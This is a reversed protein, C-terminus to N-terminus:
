VLSEMIRNVYMNLGDTGSGIKKITGDATLWVDITNEELFELDHSVVVVAGPFEQLAVTLGEITEVDLHNTPEDLLLIDPSKISISAFYVRAKQGGSLTAILRTHAEGPLGSAGLVKRVMDVTVNPEQLFELPTKDEPLQSYFHQDFLCVRLGPKKNSHGSKTDISGDMYKMFTSKGSGNAGVLAIRSKPYVAFSVNELVLKGASYGLSVDETTVLATEGMEEGLLFFKPRYEKEPRCIGEAKRKALLEISQKKSDPTNKKKLITLERELKEWDKLQKKVLLEHQKKFSTYSGRTVLLHGSGTFSWINNALSRIFGINHSIVLLTKRWGSCFSSLWLVAELDLHNTPEDLMLLDPEMFLGQALAVRARWGGSFTYLPASFDKFGLGALIQKVRPPDADAKMSVLKEQLINYERTEEESLDDITELTATRKYLEGRELHASLVVNLISQKSASLEQAVEYVSWTPEKNDSLWKFLTTKGCGNRGLIAIRDGKSISFSAEQLIHTSGFKINLKSVSIADPKWTTKEVCHNM